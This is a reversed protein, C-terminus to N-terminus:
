KTPFTLDLVIKWSGDSRQKWLRVFGGKETQGQEAKRSWEGYAYGLGGSAEVEQVVITQPAASQSILQYAADAGAPEHGDRFLLFDAAAKEKYAAALGKQLVIQAFALEQDLILQPTDSDGPHGPGAAPALIPQDKQMVSPGPTSIGQDLVVKWRGDKQKKWISMYYGYALNQDNGFEWPGTTYGLDGKESIDAIRPEWILKGSLEPQQLHYKRGPIWKQKFIVSDDAFFEVFASKRGKEESMKAFAREANVLFELRTGAVSLQAVFVFLLVTLRKM